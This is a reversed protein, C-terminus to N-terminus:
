SRQWHKGSGVPFPLAHEKLGVGDLPAFGDGKKTQIVLGKDLVRKVELGATESCFVEGCKFNESSLAKGVLAQLETAVLQLSCIFYAIGVSQFIFHWKPFIFFIADSSLELIVRRSRM